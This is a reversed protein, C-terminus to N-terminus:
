EDKAEGAWTSVYGESGEYFEATKQQDVIAGDGGLAQELFKTESLCSGGKVGKVQFTVEGKANIVIEIDQKHM